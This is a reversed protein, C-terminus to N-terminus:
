RALRRVLRSAAAIGAAAAGLLVAADAGREDPRGPHPHLDRGLLWLAPQVARTYPETRDHRLKQLEVLCLAAVRAPAVRWRPRGPPPTTLLDLAPGRPRDASASPPAAPAGSM